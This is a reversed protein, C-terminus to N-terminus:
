VPIIWTPEDRLDAVIKTCGLDKALAAVLLVKPQM